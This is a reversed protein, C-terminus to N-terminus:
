GPAPLAAVRRGTRKGKEEGRAWLMMVIPVDDRVNAPTCQMILPTGDPDTIIHRKCGNKGRDV